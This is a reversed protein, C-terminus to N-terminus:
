GRSAARGVQLNRPARQQVPRAKGAVIRPVANSTSCFTKTFM